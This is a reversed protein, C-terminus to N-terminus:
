RVENLLNAGDTVVRMKGTLGSSVLVKDGDIPRIRVPISSFAEPQTHIWVIDQGSTDRVVAARPLVIGSEGKGSQGGTMGILVSVLSGVSLNADPDDVAFYLPITQKRLQPGRSMFKLRYNEGTPGVANAETVKTIGSADYAYAEVWLRKLDVVEFLKQQEDVIQGAVAFSAAIVGTSPALLPARLTDRDRLVAAIADRRRILNALEARADDAERTTADGFTRLRDQVVGISRDIQAVQQLIIGRDIPNVVPVVSALIQNAEVTDGVKPWRGNAPELRGRITAHIQGSTGPDPIVQGVVRVTRQVNSLATVATRVTLLRQTAKPIYLTGDLLRHPSNGALDSATKTDQGDLADAEHAFVSRGALFLAMVILYIAVAVAFASRKGPEGRTAAHDAHSGVTALAAKATRRAPARPRRRRAALDALVTRPSQALRAAVGTVAAGLGALGASAAMSMGPSAALGGANGAFAPVPEIGGRDAPSGASPSDTLRSAGFMTLLGLVFAGVVGFSPHGELFSAHALGGADPAPIGLTGALLDAGQDSRVTFVLDHRGPQAVWPAAATYVGDDGAATATVTQGDGADVEITAGVVPQDDAFRDLYITLQEGKAVGVLEFDESEVAIRPDPPATPSAAPSDGGDDDAWAAVSMGALVLGIGLMIAAVRGRCVHMGIM